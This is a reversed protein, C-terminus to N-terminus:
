QSAYCIRRCVRNQKEDRAECGRLLGRIRQLENSLATAEVSGPLLRVGDPQVLLSQRDIRIEELAMERHPDREIELAAVGVRAPMERTGNGERRRLALDRRQVRRGYRVRELPLRVLARLEVPLRVVELRGLTRRRRSFLGVREPAEVQLGAVRLLRPAPVLGPVLGRAPLPVLRCRLESEPLEAPQVRLRANRRTLVM